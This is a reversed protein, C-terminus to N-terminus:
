THRCQNSRGRTCWTRRSSPGTLPCRNESTGVPKPANECTGSAPQSWITAKQPKMSFAPKVNLCLFCIPQPFHAEMDPSFASGPLKPKPHIPAKLVRLGMGASRWRLSDANEKPERAHGRDAVWCVPRRTVPVLLHCAPWSRRANWKGGEVRFALCHPAGNCCAQPFLTRDLRGHFNPHVPAVKKKRTDNHSTGRRGWEDWFSMAHMARCQM